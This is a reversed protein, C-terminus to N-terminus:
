LGTEKKIREREEKSELREARRWLIDALSEWAAAAQINPSPERRMLQGTHFARLADHQADASTKCRTLIGTRLGLREAPTM